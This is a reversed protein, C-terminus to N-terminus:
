VSKRDIGEALAANARPCVVIGGTKRAALCLEKKSAHTMHVLFHPKLLICRQTESKKTMKKQKQYYEVRGLIMSRIPLTSVIKKLLLVGELGGERFDVFTTIGNKIMSLCSTKMFNALHAPKTNKLIKSKIGHMPHIRVEATSELSIDKAISDGIHTHANVFGPIIVLGECDLKEESPNSALNQKIKKFIQESIRINTNEIYQLDDGYLISANKLLM